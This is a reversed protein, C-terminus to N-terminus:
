GSEPRVTTATVCVPHGVTTDPSGPVNSTAPFTGTRDRAVGTPLETRYKTVYTTESVVVM